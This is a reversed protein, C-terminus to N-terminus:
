EITGLEFGFQLRDVAIHRQQAVLDAAGGAGVALM